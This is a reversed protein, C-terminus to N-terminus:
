ALGSCGLKVIEPVGNTRREVLLSKVVHKSSDGPTLTLKRDGKKELVGWDIELDWSSCNSLSLEEPIETLLRLHAQQEIQCVEIDGRVGHM